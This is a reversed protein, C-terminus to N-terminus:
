DQRLQVSSFSTSESFGEMGRSAVYSFTTARSRITHQSRSFQLLLRAHWKMDSDVVYHVDCPLHLPLKFARQQNM